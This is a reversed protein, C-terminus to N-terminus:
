KKIFAARCRGLEEKEKDNAHISGKASGMLRVSGKYVGQIADM